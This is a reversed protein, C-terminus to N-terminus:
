RDKILDYIKYLKSFEELVTDVINEVSLDPDDPQYLRGINYTGKYQDKQLHTELIKPTHMDEINLNHGDIVFWYANGLDKLLTFFQDVFGPVPIQNKIYHRDHYSGGDKSVYLWTGIYAEQNTNRLIIQIRLNQGFDIKNPKRLKLEPVSKGYHLWIAEKPIHDYGRAHYHKSTIERRSYHNHLNTIGYAQFKPVILDNLDILRRRVKARRAVAAPSTDLHNVDAFADFDSQTFFQGAPVVLNLGPVGDARNTLNDINSKQTGQLQKNRRYTKEYNDIYTKNFSKGLKFRTSFWNFLKDYHPQDTVKFSIEVNREFGGRTANASGVFAILEGELTKIIYVKPHYNAKEKWVRAQVLAPDANQLALLKRFVSPPTPLHVGVLYSRRCKAPLCTEIADLGYDNMLAVAVYIESASKLAPLLEDRLTEIM